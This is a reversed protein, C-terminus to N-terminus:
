LSFGSRIKRWIWPICAGVPPALWLIIMSRWDHAVYDLYMRSAGISVAVGLSFYAMRILNDSRHKLCVIDRLLDETTPPQPIM